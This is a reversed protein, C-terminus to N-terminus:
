ELGYTEHPPMPTHAAPPIVADCMLTPCAARVELASDHLAARVLMCAAYLGAVQVRTDRRAVWVVLENTKCSLLQRYNDAHSLVGHAQLQLIEFVTVRRFAVSPETM